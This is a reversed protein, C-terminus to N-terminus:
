EPVFKLKGEDISPKTCIESVVPATHNETLKGWKQHM